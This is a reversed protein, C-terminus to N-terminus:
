HPVSMVLGTKGDDCQVCMCCRGTCVYLSRESVVPKGRCINRGGICLTRSYVDHDPSTALGGKIWGKDNLGRPGVLRRYTTYAIVMLSVNKGREREKCGM